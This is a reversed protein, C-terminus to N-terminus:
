WGSLTKSTWSSYRKRDHESLREYDEESIRGPSPGSEATLSNARYAFWHGHEPVHKNGLSDFFCPRMHVPSEGGIKATERVIQTERHLVKFSEGPRLRHPLSMTSVVKDEHTEVVPFMLEATPSEAGPSTPLRGLEFKYKSVEVDFSGANTVTFGIFDVSKHDGELPVVGTSFTLPVIRLKSKAKEAEHERAETLLDAQKKTFWAQVAVAFAIIATLSVNVWTDPTM